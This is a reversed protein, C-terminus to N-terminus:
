RTKRKKSRLRRARDLEAIEAARERELQKLRDHLQFLTVSPDQRGAATLRQFVANPSAAAGDMKAGHPGDASAYLSQVLRDREEQRQQEAMQRAVIELTSPMDSSARQPTLSGSNAVGVAIKPKGKAQSPILLSSFHSLHIEREIREVADHRETDRRSSSDPPRDTSVDLGHRKGDRARLADEPPMGESYSGSQQWAISPNSHQGFVVFSPMRSAAENPNAGDVVDAGGLLATEVLQEHEVDRLPAEAFREAEAFMALHQETYPVSTFAISAELALRKRSVAPSGAATRGSPSHEATPPRISQFLREFQRLSVQRQQEDDDEDMENGDVLSEDRISNFDLQVDFAGCKHRISAVTVDGKENSCSRFADSTDGNGAERDTEAKLKMIRCVWILLNQDVFPPREPEPQEATPTPDPLHHQPAQLAATAPTTSGRKSSLPAGSRPSVSRRVTHRRSSVTPAAAAGGRPFGADALRKMRLADRVIEDIISLPTPCPVGLLQFFTVFHQTTRLPGVINSCAVIADHERQTLIKELRRTRLEAESPEVHVVPLLVRASHGRQLGGDGAAAVSQLADAISLHKRSM